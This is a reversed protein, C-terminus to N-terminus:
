QAAEKDTAHHTKGVCSMVKTENSIRVSPRYNNSVLEVMGTLDQKRRMVWRIAHKAIHKVEILM